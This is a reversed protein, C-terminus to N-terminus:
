IFKMNKENNIKNGSSNKFQFKHSENKLGQNPRYQFIAPKGKQLNERIRDNMEKRATIPNGICEIVFDSFIGSNFITKKNKDLYNNRIQILHSITLMFLDKNKNDDLSRYYMYNILSFLILLNFSAIKINGNNLEAKDKEFYIAKVKQYPLCKKNSGYIIGILQDKYYLRTSFDTFQFFPYHEEYKFEDGLFDKLLTIIEKTDKEYDTSILEYHNIDTNNFIKLKSEYLYYNYAYLGCVIITDKELIFRFIKNVISLMKERNNKFNVDLSKNLIQFPYHKQLLYYRKFRKDLKIEWSTMPDTLIRLYDILAWNPHVYNIGDIEIFPIKNYINRPVYSIDCAEIDDVYIKYTEEHQAERGVVENYGMNYFMNCIEFLDHLPDPSYFDIDPVELDELFGDKKNKQIIVKNHSYSGYIKRKNNKVYEIVKNVIEMKTDGTPELLNWTRKKVEEQIKNINEPFLELDEERIISM